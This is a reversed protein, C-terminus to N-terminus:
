RSVPRAAVAPEDVSRAPRASPLDGQAARNLLSIFGAPVACAADDKPSVYVKVEKEIAKSAVRIYKLHEVTVTEVKAKLSALRQVEVDHAAQQAAQQADWERHVAASGQLRGVGYLAVAVLVIAIYPYLRALIIQIM